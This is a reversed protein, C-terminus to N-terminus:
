MVTITKTMGHMFHPKGDKADAVFCILAYNGPTIDASFYTPGVSFPSVGGLVSGPPPGVGKDVYALVDKLTKGPALKVVTVEHPQSAINKVEFVHAGATLPTSLEFAYDSLTITEDPVPAAAPPGAPAATVTVPMIMGKAFHPVGGPIPVFCLMVYNGPQLDITASSTKGPDVANPGGTFVAWAPPASPLSLQKELDAITKGSDLRIMEVHHLNPGDNIMNITTLGAPIQKPGDFAFDKAHVTIVNPARPAATVTASAAKSTSDAQGASSDKAGTCASLGLTVAGALLVQKRM